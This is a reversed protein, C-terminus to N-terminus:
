GLGRPHTPAPSIYGFSEARDRLKEEWCGQCCWVASRYTASQALYVGVEGLRTHCLICQMGVPPIGSEGFRLMENATRGRECAEAKANLEQWCSPCIWLNRGPTTGSELTRAGERVSIRCVM